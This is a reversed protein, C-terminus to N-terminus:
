GCQIGHVAASRAASLRWGGISGCQIGHVAASQAASLRQGGVLGGVLRAALQICGGHVSSGFVGAALVNQM